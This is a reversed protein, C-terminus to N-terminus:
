ADQGGRKVKNKKSWKWQSSSLIIVMVVATILRLDSPSAGIRLALALIARYLISGMIVISSIQFGLDWTKKFFMEGMVISALASVILGVGMSIDAFGQFQAFLSGSLAVCGNSLALGLIKYHDPNLGLHTVFSTNEGLAKLVYGKQTKFFIDWIMKLGISFGILIMLKFFDNRGTFLHNTDFLHINSKGMIRLNISYLATMVIIGSLINTIKCKVHLIGTVSGALLGAFLSLIIALFTPFGLKLCIASVAAGLTFTGDVSLDPFDLIRFSIYIGLGAIAFILGQSLTTYMLSTM